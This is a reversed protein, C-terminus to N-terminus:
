IYCFFYSFSTQSVSLQIPPALESRYMDRGRDSKVRSSQEHRHDSGIVTLFGKAVKTSIKGNDNRKRDLSIHLNTRSTGQRIEETALITTDVPSPIM